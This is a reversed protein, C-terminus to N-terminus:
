RSFTVDAPMGIKLKGEPDTVRLKVAFVTSSRGEVTQVNRPTFEAQDAIHIVEADFTPSEGSAVDITVTASQGLKIENLRPDPVYVTITLENLNAMTLAVSGPQIFEGPEVNRTLVVGDMPAYITLKEMQTDLLALSAESQSIAMKSQAVAAQAQEVMRQAITVAASSEGTQLELVSDLATYYREQAISKEARAKLVERAEDTSAAANYAADAEDLQLKADDYTQRASDRIDQSVGSIFLDGRSVKILQPRSLEESNLGNQVRDYLSKAVQYGARAAALDTEAQIFGSSTANGQISALQSEAEALSTKASEVETLAANI